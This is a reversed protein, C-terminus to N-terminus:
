KNCSNGPSLFLVSFPFKECHFRVCLSNKLSRLDSYTTPSGSLLIIKTDGSCSIKVRCFILFGDQAILLERMLSARFSQFWLYFKGCTDENKSFFVGPHANQSAKSHAMVCAAPCRSFLFFFWVSELHFPDYSELHSKGLTEARATTHSPWSM